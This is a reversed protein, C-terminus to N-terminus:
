ILKEFREIISNIAVEGNEYEIDYRVNGKEYYPLDLELLERMSLQLSCIFYNDAIFQEVATRKDGSTTGYLYSAGMFLATLPMGEIVDATVFGGLGYKDCEFIKMLSFEIDVAYDHPTKSM